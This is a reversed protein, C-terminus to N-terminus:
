QEDDPGRIIKLVFASFSEFMVFFLGVLLVSLALGAESDILAYIDM